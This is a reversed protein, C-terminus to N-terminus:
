RTLLLSTVGKEDLRYTTKFGRRLLQATMFSLDESVVWKSIVFWVRQREDLLPLKCLFDERLENYGRAGNEKVLILDLGQEDFHEVYFGGVNKGEYAIDNLVTKTTPRFYYLFPAIEKSTALVVADGEQAHNRIFAAPSEWNINLDERYIVYISVLSMLTLIVVAFIRFKESLSFISYSLILIFIPLIIIMHKIIFFNIFYYSELFAIILPLAFLLAISKGINKRLLMMIGWLFLPGFIVLGTADVIKLFKFKEYVGQFFVASDGLGYTAGGMIFVAFLERFFCAGPSEVWFLSRDVHNLKILLAEWAMFGLMLAMAIVWTKKYKVKRFAVIVMQSILILFGSPYTLLLVIICIVNGVLPKLTQRKLYAMFFFISGISLLSVLTFQRIQQSHFIHFPSIAILFAALLGIKAGLTNKGLLYIFPVALCGFIVSLMRLAFPSVGFANIWIGLIWFYLPKFNVPSWHLWYDTNTATAISDAEDYWIVRQGLHFVRLYFSLGLILLLIIGSQHRRLFAPVNKTIGYDM